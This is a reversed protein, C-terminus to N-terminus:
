DVPPNFYFPAEGTNLSVAVMNNSVSVAPFLRGFVGRFAVGQDEGDVSFRVDGRLVDWACGIVTAGPPLAELRQLLGDPQKASNHIPSAPLNLDDRASLAEPEWDDEDDQEESIGRRFFPGNKMQRSGSAAGVRSAHQRLRLMLNQLNSDEGPLHLMRRRIGYTDRQMFGPRPGSAVHSGRPALRVKAEESQADDEGTDGIVHQLLRSLMEGMAGGRLAGQGRSSLIERLMGADIGM